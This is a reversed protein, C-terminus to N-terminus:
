MTNKKHIKMFDKNAPWSFSSIIERKGEINPSDHRCNMSRHYTWQDIINLCTVYGAVSPPIVKEAPLFLVQQASKVLIDHLQNWTLRGTYYTKFKTKLFQQSSHMISSYVVSCSGQYWPHIENIPRTPGAHRIMEGYWSRLLWLDHLIM